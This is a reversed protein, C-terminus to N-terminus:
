REYISAAITFDKVEDVVKGPFYEVKLQSSDVGGPHHLM